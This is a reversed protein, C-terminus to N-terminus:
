PKHLDRTSKLLEIMRAPMADIRANLKEATSALDDHLGAISVSRKQDLREFGRVIEDSIHEVRQKLEAHEARTAYTDAPTPKERIHDKFFSLAQNLLLMVGSAGLLWPVVPGLMDPTLQALLNM